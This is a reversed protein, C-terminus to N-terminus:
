RVDTSRRCERLGGTDRAAPPIVRL